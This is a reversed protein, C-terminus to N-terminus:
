LTLYDGMSLLLLIVMDSIIKACALIMPIQRLFGMGTIQEELRKKESQDMVINNQEVLFRIQRSTDQYGSNGFSYLLKMGTQIEPMDLEGFFDIYPQLSVPNEYIGERLLATEAAFIGGTQRQSMDIAQYVSEEQLYLTVSLLWYSFEREVEHQCMKEALYGSIGRRHEKVLRYNKRQRKENRESDGEKVDLWTGTLQYLLVTEVLMFLIVVVTTSVHFITSKTLIARLNWPILVMSLCCLIFAMGVALLSERRVFEKKKQYLQVRHKWMQLDSLLIDLSGERDGGMKEAECLFEHLLALRRSPYINRIEDLATESISDDRVGEGTRLIYLAQQLADAMRSKEPYLVRCDELAQPLTGWRKYSCLLQEMYATIEFFEAKAEHTRQICRNVVPLLLLGTCGTVILSVPPIKYVRFLILELIGLIATQFFYKKM